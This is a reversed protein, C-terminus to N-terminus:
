LRRARRRIVDEAGLEELFRLFHGRVLGRGHPAQMAWVGWGVNCEVIRPGRATLGVDFGLSRIAPFAAQARRALVVAADWDPLRIGRLSVGTDPHREVPLMTPMFSAEGVRGTALEVPAFVSGYNLNDIGSTGVPIKWLPDLLEVTGDDFLMTVMRVCGLTDGHIRALDPHPPTRREVLWDTAVNIFSAIGPPRALIAWLRDPDWTDGTMGTLQHAAVARFMHIDYGKTGSAPKFVLGDPHPEALFDRLEGNTRIVRGPRVAGPQAAVVALVEPGAVGARGLVGAAEAKDRASVQAARTCIRPQIRVRDNIGMFRLREDIPLKRDWLRNFYFDSWGAGILARFRVFDVVAHWPAVGMHRHLHRLTRVAKIPDTVVRAATRALGTV